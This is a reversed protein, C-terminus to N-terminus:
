LILSQILQTKNLFGRVRCKRGDSTAEDFEEGLKFSMDVTSFTPAGHEIKVVIKDGDRSVITTPSSSTGHKRIELPAGAPLYLFATIM